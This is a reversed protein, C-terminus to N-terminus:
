LRSKNLGRAVGLIAIVFWVTASLAIRWWVHFGNGAQFSQFASEAIAGAIFAALIGAFAPSFAFWKRRHVAGPEVLSVRPAIEDTRM